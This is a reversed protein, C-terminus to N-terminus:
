QISPPVLGFYEPHAKTHMHSGVTYYINSDDEHFHLRTNQTNNPQWCYAACKPRRTFHQKLKLGAKVLYQHKQRIKTFAGGIDFKTFM